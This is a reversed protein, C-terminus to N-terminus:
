NKSKGMDNKNQADAIQKGREAAESSNTKGAGVQEASKEFNGKTENERDYVYEEKKEDYNYGFYDKFVDPVYEEYGMGDISLTFCTRFFQNKNAPFICFMYSRGERGCIPWNYQTKSSKLHKGVDEEHYRLFTLGSAGVVDPEFSLDIEADSSVPDPDRLRQRSLRASSDSTMFSFVQWFSALLADLFLICLIDKCEECL